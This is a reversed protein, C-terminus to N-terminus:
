SMVPIQVLGEVKCLILRKCAVAKFLQLAIRHIEDMTPPPLGEEFLIEALSHEYSRTVFTPHVFKFFDLLQVCGHAGDPQKDSITRLIRVETPEPDMPLSLDLITILVPRKEGYLESGRLVVPPDIENARLPTRDAARSFIALTYLLGKRIPLKCRNLPRSGQFICHEDEDGVWEVSYPNEAERQAMLSQYPFFSYDKVGLWSSGDGSEGKEAGPLSPPYAQDEHRTGSDNLPPSKAPQMKKAQLSARSNGSIDERAAALASLSASTPVHFVKIKKRRSVVTVRVLGHVEAEDSEYDDNEDLRQKRALPDCRRRKSDQIEFDCSRGASRKRRNLMEPPIPVNFSPQGFRPADRPHSPKPPVTVDEIEVVRTFFM